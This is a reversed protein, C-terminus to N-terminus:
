KNEVLQAMQKFASLLEAQLAKKISSKDLAKEMCYLWQESEQAGIAFPFHRMRLRPHGYKEMYLQPGGLWGSLFRYLKDTSEERVRGSHTALCERAAPDTHMVEYFDDVLKKM